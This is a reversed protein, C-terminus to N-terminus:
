RQRGPEHTRYAAGNKGSTKVAYMLHDARAILEDISCAHRCTVAGISFTVPWRNRTVVDRLLEHLKGIVTKAQEEDTETMLVSFEDGGLRAVLDTSRVHTRMCSAVANLLRDGASHGLTDNVIKFNDIDIYALTFPRQSRATRDVEMGALEYFARSNMAGTLHDTRALARERNLMIRIQALSIAVILFIAMIMLANWIAILPSSFVHGAVFDALFWVGAALVSLIAAPTRGGFWATLMIPLLYFVSFAIEFGTRYDLFGIVAVCLIGIIFVMDPSLRELTGSFADLPNRVM